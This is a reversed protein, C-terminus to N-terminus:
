LLAQLPNNLMEQLTGMFEAGVAGDIIRHDVTLSFGTMDRIEIKDGIVVPKKVTRSVGLIASEPLNIIPTFHDVAYMGLNSITFTGGTYDDPLLQGSRAKAILAKATVAIEQLSMQDAGRIVPVILGDELAVALGINIDKHYIIENGALSANLKPHRALARAVIKILLDTFSLKIDRLAFVQKADQLYALFRTTDLEASLTFQASQQLSAQMRDAIVRRMNSMAMTTGAQKGGAGAGQQLHAVIHEKGIKGAAPLADIDIGYYAAMKQALPTVRRSGAFQEVDRVTISGLQGTGRISKLEIGRERALRRAAPTALVKGSNM